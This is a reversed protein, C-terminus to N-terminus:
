GLGKGEEEERLGHAGEEELDVNGGEEERRVQAASPYPGGTPTM